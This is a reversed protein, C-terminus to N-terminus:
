SSALAGPISSQLRAATIGTNNNAYKGTHNTHIQLVSTNFVNIWQGVGSYRRPSGCVYASSFM